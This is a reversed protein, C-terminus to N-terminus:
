PMAKGIEAASRNIALRTAACSDYGHMEVEDYKGGIEENPLRIATFKADPFVYILLGLRVALRLADGDNAKPNWWASVGDRVKILLGQEESYAEVTHGAAKAAFELLERDTM